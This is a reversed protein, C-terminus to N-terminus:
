RLGTKPKSTIAIWSQPSITHLGTPFHHPSSSGGELIDPNHIHHEALQKLPRNPCGLGLWFGGSACIIVDLSISGTWCSSHIYPTSTRLVPTWWPLVFSLRAGTKCRDGFTRCLEGSPQALLRGRTHGPHRICSLHILQLREQDLLPKPPAPHLLFRLLSPLLLVFSCPPDEVCFFIFSRFLLSLCRHVADKYSNAINRPRPPPRIEHLPRRILFLRTGHVMRLLLGSCVYSPPGDSPQKPTRPSAAVTLDVPSAWVACRQVPSARTQPRLKLARRQNWVPPHHHPRRSPAHHRALFRSATLLGRRGRVLWSGRGGQCAGKSATWGVARSAAQLDVLRRRNATEARSELQHKPFQLKEWVPGERKLDRLDRRSCSAHPM